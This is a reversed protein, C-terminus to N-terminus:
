SLGTQEPDRQVRLEGVEPDVEVRYNATIENLLDWLFVYEYKRYSKPQNMQM